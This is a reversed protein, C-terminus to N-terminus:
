ETAAEDKEAKPDEDSEGGVFEIDYDSLRMDLVDDKTLKPNQRRFTIYMHALMTKMSMDSERLPRQPNEPDKFPVGTKPDRIVTGALAKEFSMGAMEEFDLYDRMTMADIDILLKPKELKEAM